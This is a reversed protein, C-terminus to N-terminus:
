FGIEKTWGQRWDHAWIFKVGASKAAGEDEPRDGVYLVETVDVYLKMLLELMGGGPKRFPSVVETFQWPLDDPVRGAATRVWQNTLLWTASEGVSRDIGLRSGVFSLDYCYNGAFDPCFLARGVEPLLELTYQMEQLAWEITQYPKGTQPNIAECGGQNSAISITWGDTVAEQIKEKVGPLLKLDRPHQRFESGSAPTTLTGDRDLILLKM